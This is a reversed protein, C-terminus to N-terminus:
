RRKLAEFRKALAVFDDEAAPQNSSQGDSSTTDSKKLASKVPKGPPM